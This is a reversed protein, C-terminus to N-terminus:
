AKGQPSRSSNFSALFSRVNGATLAALAPRGFNRCKQEGLNVRGRKRLISRLKVRGVVGCLFLGGPINPKFAVSPRPLLCLLAEVEYRRLEFHNASLEEPRLLIPDRQERVQQLVDSGEFSHLEAVWLNPAGGDSPQCIWLRQHNPALSKALRQSM